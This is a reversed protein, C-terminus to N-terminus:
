PNSVEDTNSITLNVRKLSKVLKCEQWSYIVTVRGKIDQCCKINEPYWPKKQKKNKCIKDTVQQTTDPEKCGWSSCCALSGQGESDGQTQDFEHGNLRCWGAMEKEMEGKEEQGKGADPGKGTLWSKMDPSRLIPAEDDTKAILIWPQNGKPSVPKIESFDLPSELTKELTVIQFCWNKLM